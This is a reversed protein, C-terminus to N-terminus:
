ANGPPTTWKSLRRDNKLEDDDRSCWRFGVRRTNKDRTFFRNARFREWRSCSKSVISIHAPTSSHISYEYMFFYLSVLFHRMLLLTSLFYILHFFLFHHQKECKISNGGGWSINMSFLLWYQEASPSIFGDHHLHYLPLTKGSFLSSEGGM